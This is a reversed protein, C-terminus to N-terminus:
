YKFNRYFSDSKLFNRIELDYPFVKKSVASQFQRTHKSNESIIVIKKVNGIAEPFLNEYFARWQSNLYPYLFIGEYCIEIEEIFQLKKSGELVIKM